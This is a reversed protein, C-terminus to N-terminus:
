AGMLEHYVKGLFSVAAVFLLVVSIVIITWIVKVLKSFKKNQWLLPLAFPGVCCLMWVVYVRSEEGTVPKKKGCAVALADKAAPIMVFPYIFLLSGQALLSQSFFFAVGLGLSMAGYVMAAFRHGIYLHGLGPFFISLLVAVWPKKNLPQIDSM